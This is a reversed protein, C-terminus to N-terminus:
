VIANITMEMNKLSAEFSGSEAGTSKYEKFLMALNRKMEEAERQLVKIINDDDAINQQMQNLKKEMEVVNSTMGLGKCEEIEMELRPFGDRLLQARRQLFSVLKYESNFYESMSALYHNMRPPLDSKLDAQPIKAQLSSLEATTVKNVESQFGQLSAVVDSISESLKMNQSVEGLQKEIEKAEVSLSDDLIVLKGEAKVIEDDISDEEAVLRKLELELEKIKNSLQGKKTKFNNINSVIEQRDTLSTHSEMQRKSLEEYKAKSSLVEEFKSGFVKAMMEETSTEISGNSHGIGNGNMTTFKGDMPISRLKINLINSHKEALNKLQDRRVVLGGVGGGGTENSNRSSISSKLSAIEADLRDFSVGSGASATSIKDVSMSIHSTVTETVFDAVNDSMTNNNSSSSSSSNGTTGDNIVSKAKTLTHMLARSFSSLETAPIGAIRLISGILDLLQASYNKPGPTIIVRRIVTRLACPGDCLEKVEIPTAAKVIWETLAVIADTLNEDNAVIDLKTKLTPPSKPVAAKKVATNANGNSTATRTEVKEAQTEPQDQQKQQKQQQQQQPVPQEKKTVTLPVAPSPTPEKVSFSATSVTKLEEESANRQRLPVDKESASTSTPVDGNGDTADDAAGDSSAQTQTKSQEATMFVMVSNIDCYDLGLNWMDEISKDIAPPKFGMEQLGIRLADHSNLPDLEPTTTKSNSNNSSDKNSSNNNKNAEAKKSKAKNRKMRKKQSKTLPANNTSSNSNNNTEITSM